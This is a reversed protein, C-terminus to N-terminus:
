RSSGDRSDSTITSTRRNVTTQSRPSLSVSIIFSSNLILLLLSLFAAIEGSLNRTIRRVEEVTPPFLEDIAEDSILQLVDHDPHSGYFVSSPVGDNFIAFESPQFPQALPSLFM